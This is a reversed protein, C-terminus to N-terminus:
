KSYLEIILQEQIPLQIDERQPLRLVQIKLNKDDVALWTPVGRDKIKEYSDKINKIINEKKISEVEDKETILYSPIDVKKGNVLIDGHAVIQRASKRSSAFCARFVVNDLRRELLQLLIQGTVGRSKAAKEFYNRFQTELIGYMRKVKQKERLQLGYNSRKVRGKGHQGPAYGRKEFACKVTACRTGKLFLKTGERRCLRCSAETYRAM